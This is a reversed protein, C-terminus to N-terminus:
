AAEQQDRRSETAARGAGTSVAAMKKQDIKASCGRGREIVIRGRGRGHIRVTGPLPASRRRIVDSVAGAQDGAIKAVVDGFELRWNKKKPAM